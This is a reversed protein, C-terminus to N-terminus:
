LSTSGAFLLSAEDFRAHCTIYVQSTSPDLCKYGKYQSYYRLFICPISRPSLKYALYDGLYPYVQSGFTRFNRYSPMQSYILQFPSHINLVKTPLRNIIFVVFIFLMWRIHPCFMHISCCLLDQKLLIVISTNLKGSQQPM